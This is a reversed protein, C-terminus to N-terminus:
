PGERVSFIQVRHDGSLTAIKSGSPSFSIALPRSTTAAKLEDVATGKTSFLLLNKQTGSVALRQTPWHVAAVAHGNKSDLEIPADKPTKHFYIRGTAWSNDIIRIFPGGHSHFANSLFPADTPVPTAQQKTPGHLHRASGAKLDVLTCCGDHEALLVSKGESSVFPWDDSYPIRNAVSMLDDSYISLAKNELVCLSKVAPSWVLAYVLFPEPIGQPTSDAGTAIDLRLITKAKNEAFGEHQAVYVHDPTCTVAAIREDAKKTWLEQGSKADFAQIQGNSATVVLVSENAWLVEACRGGDVVKPDGKSVVFSSVEALKEGGPCLSILLALIGSIATRIPM